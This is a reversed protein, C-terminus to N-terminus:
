RIQLDPDLVKVDTDNDLGYWVVAKFDKGSKVAVSDKVVDKVSTWIDDASPGRLGLIVEEETFLLDDVYAGEPMHRKLEEALDCAAQREAKTGLGNDGTFRGIISIHDEPPIKAQEEKSLKVAELYSQVDPAKLIDRVEDSWAFACDDHTKMHELIQQKHMLISEAICERMSGPDVEGDYFQEFWTIGETRLDDVWVPASTIMNTGGETHVVDTVWSSPVRGDVVTFTDAVYVMQDTTDNAMGCCFFASSERSPLRPKRFPASWGIRQKSTPFWDIVGVDVRIGTVIYLEDPDLMDCAESGRALQAESLEERPIPRVLM